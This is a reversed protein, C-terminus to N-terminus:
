AWGARWGTTGQQTGNADVTCHTRKFTHTYSRHTAKTDCWVSQNGQRGGTGVRM